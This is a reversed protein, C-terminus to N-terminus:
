PLFQICGDRRIENYAFGLAVESSPAPEDGETTPIWFAPREVRGLITLATIMMLAHPEPM